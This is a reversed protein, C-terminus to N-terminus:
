QSTNYMGATPALPLPITWDDFDKVGMSVILNKTVIKFLSEQKFIWVPWLVNRLQNINMSSADLALLQGVVYNKVVTHSGYADCVTALSVLQEISLSPEVIDELHLLMLSIRFDTTDDRDLSITPLTQQSLRTPVRELGVHM